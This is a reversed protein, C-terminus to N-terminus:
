TGLLLVPHHVAATVAVRKFKILNNLFACSSFMLCASSSFFFAALSASISFAFPTLRVFFATSSLQAFVQTNNQLIRRLDRLLVSTTKYALSPPPATWTFREAFRCPANRATLVPKSGIHLSKAQSPAISSANFSLLCTKEGSVNVRNVRCQNLELM